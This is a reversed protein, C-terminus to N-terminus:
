TMRKLLISELKEDQILINTDSCKNSIDLTAKAPTIPSPRLQKLGASRPTKLPSPTQRRKSTIDANPPDNLLYYFSRHRLLSNNRPFVKGCECVFEKSCSVQSNELKHDGAAGGAFLGQLLGGGDREGGGCIEDGIKNAKGKKVSSRGRNEEKRGANVISGIMKDLSVFPSSQGDHQSSTLEKHDQNPQPPLDDNSQPKDM